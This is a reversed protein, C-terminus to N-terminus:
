LIKLDLYLLVFDGSGLLAYILIGLFIGFVLIRIFNRFSPFRLFTRDFSLGLVQYQYWSVSSLELNGSDHFLYPVLHISCIAWCVSPSKM